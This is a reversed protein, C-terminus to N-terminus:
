GEALAGQIFKVLEERGPIRGYSKVKENIVLGPTHMIGYSMIGPIDKVDQIEAEVGLQEMVKRVANKLRICNPCGTGLIKIVM